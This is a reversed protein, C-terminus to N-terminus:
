IIKRNRRILFLAISLVAIVIVSAIILVTMESGLLDGQGGEELVPFISFQPDNYISYGDWNKFGTTLFFMSSQIEFSTLSDGTPTTYMSEFTYLPTTSAPASYSINNKGWTYNLGGMRIEALKAQQTTFSFEDSATSNTNSDDLPTEGANFKTQATTTTLYTNYSIALSRNLLVSNNFHKLSWDGIYQDVKLSASTSNDESTTVQFHGAFKIQTITSSEVSKEFDMTDLTLNPNHYFTYPSYLVDSALKVPYLSGTVNNLFVEFDVPTDLTINQSGAQQTSNFPRQFVIEEVSDILFYHTVEGSDLTNSQYGVRPVGDGDTDNFLLLASYDAKFQVTDTISSTQYLYNEDVTFYFWSYEWKNDDLWWWSGIFDALTVNSTAFKLLEYG